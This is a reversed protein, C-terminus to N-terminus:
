PWTSKRVVMALPSRSIRVEPDWVGWFALGCLVWQGDFNWRIGSWIRSSSARASGFIRLKLEQREAAAVAGAFRDAFTANAAITEQEQFVGRHRGGVRSLDSFMQPKGATRVCVGPIELSECGLGGTGRCIGVEM